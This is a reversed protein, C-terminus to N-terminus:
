EVVHFDDHHSEAQRIEIEQTPGEDIVPEEYYDRGFADYNMLYLSDAAERQGNGVQLILPSEVSVREGTAVSHGDVLIGYVWDKEGSIYQPPGVKFGMSMLKAQAERYSSNDIVDPLALTPTASANIILYITRGSKVHTGPAPMQELVTGPPLTKIYGTDSVEVNMDLDDLVEKAAEFSHRRVDPVAISEGHNTYFRMAVQSLICLLVIVVVMALLNLWLSLSTLKKFFETPKM